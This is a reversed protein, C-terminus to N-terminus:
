SELYELAKTEDQEIFIEVGRKAKELLRKSQKRAKSANSVLEAIKNQISKDVLPIPLNLIDSDIIVPYSTGTNYKLLLDRIPQTKLYVMLSELNINGSETLVTFAGSGIFGEHSNLIATAGRNPRVKSTILQKKEFKIKANAPLEKGGISVRQNLYGVPLKGIPRGQALNEELAKRTNDSVYMCYMKAGMISMDYRIWSDTKSKSDIVLNESVFHLIVKGDRIKEDLYVQEKFGRQFRDVRDSVIALPEDECESLASNIISMFKRRDGRTSSEVLEYPPHLLELNKEELYKDLRRRQAELSLGDEQSIDSVRPIVIAKM